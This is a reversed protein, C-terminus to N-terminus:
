NQMRGHAPVHEYQWWQSEGLAQQRPESMRDDTDIMECRRDRDSAQGRALRASCPEGDAIERRRHESRRRMDPLRRDCARFDENRKRDNRKSGHQKAGLREPRIDRNCQECAGAKNM